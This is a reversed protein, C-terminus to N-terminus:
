ELNDKLKKAAEERWSVLDGFQDEIASYRENRESSAQKRAAVTGGQIERLQHQVEDFREIEGRINKLTGYFRVIAEAEEKSLMGIDSSNSEYITSSFSDQNPINRHRIDFDDFHEMTEIETLLASRLANVEDERRAGEMRRQIAYNGISGVIGGLIGSGLTALEAPISVAGIM